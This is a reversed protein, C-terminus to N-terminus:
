QAAPRGEGWPDQEREAVPNGDLDYEADPTPDWPDTSRDLAPTPAFEYPAPAEDTAGFFLSRGAVPRGIPPPPMQPTGLGDPFRGYQDWVTAPVRAVFGEAVGLLGIMAPAQLPGSTVLVFRGKTHVDVLGQTGLLFEMMQPDLLDTAFKRDDCEVRFTRNFDESELEVDPVGFTQAVRDVFRERTIHVEPWRGNHQALACAFWHWRQYTNGNKDRYVTFYGYEFVRPLGPQDRWMLNKIRRGEGERFLPFPVATSNFPDFESFQLGAEAAVIPMDEFRKARMFAAWTGAMAVAMFLVFFVIGLAFM